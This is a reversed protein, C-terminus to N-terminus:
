ARKPATGPDLTHGAHSPSGVHHDRDTSLTSIRGADNLHLHFVLQYCSPELQAIPHYIHDVNHIITFAITACLSADFTAGLGLRRKTAGFV